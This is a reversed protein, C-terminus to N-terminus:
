RHRGSHKAHRRWFLTVAILIACLLAAISLFLSMPALPSVGEIRVYEERVNGNYDIARLTIKREFIERKIVLPSVVTQTAGDSEILEYYAVGTGSDTTAFSILVENNTLEKDRLIDIVFQQPPETDQPLELPPTEQASVESQLVLAFSKTEALSGKGDNKYLAVQKPSITFGGQKEVRALITFLVGNGNFGGPTIGSFPISQQATPKTLWLRVLSSTDRVEVVSLASPIEITGEYANLSEGEGNVLVSIEILQGVSPAIDSTQLTLEAM